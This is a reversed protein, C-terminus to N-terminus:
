LRQEPAVQGRERPPQPTIVSGCMGPTGADDEEGIGGRGGWRSRPGWGDGRICRGGRATGLAPAIRLHCRSGLLVPLGRSHRSSMQTSPHLSLHFPKSPGTPWARRRLASRLDGPLFSTRASRVAGGGRSATPGGAWSRESAWRLARRRVQPWRLRPWPCSAPSGSSAASARGSPRPWPQAPLPLLASPVRCDRRRGSRPARPAPQALLHPRPAREDEGRSATDSRTAAAWLWGRRGRGADAAGRGRGADRGGRAAGGETRVLGRRGSDASGDGAGGGGGRGEEGEVGRRGVIRGM